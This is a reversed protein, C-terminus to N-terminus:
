IMGPNIHYISYSVYLVLVRDEVMKLERERGVELHRKALPPQLRITSMLGFLPNESFIEIAAPVCVRNRARLNETQLPVNHNSSQSPFQEATRERSQEASTQRWIQATGLAWKRAGESQTSKSVRCGSRARSSLLANSFLRICM